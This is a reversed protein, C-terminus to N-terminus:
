TNKARLWPYKLREPADAPECDLHRQLNPTFILRAM